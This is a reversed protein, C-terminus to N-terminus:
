KPRVFYFAKYSLYIPWGLGIIIGASCRDTVTVTKELGAPNITEGDAFEANASYGFTLLAVLLYGYFVCDIRKM